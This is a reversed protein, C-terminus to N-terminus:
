VLLVQIFVKTIYWTIYIISKCNKLRWRIVNAKAMSNELFQNLSTDSHQVARELFSANKRGPKTRKVSHFTLIKCINNNERRILHSIWQLQQKKHFQIVSETQTISMLDENTMVYRWDVEMEDESSSQWMSGTDFGRRNRRDVAIEHCDNVADM